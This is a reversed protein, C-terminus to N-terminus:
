AAAKREDLLADVEVGLADALTALVPPSPLANGTEFRSIRDRPVRHGAQACAAELDIQLWGLLERHERLKRGSFPLTISTRAM